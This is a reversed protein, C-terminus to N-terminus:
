AEILMLDKREFHEERFRSKMQLRYFEKKARLKKLRQRCEWIRSDSDPAEKLRSYKRKLPEAVLSYEKRLAEVDLLAAIQDHAEALLPINAASNADADILNLQKILVTDKFAQNM